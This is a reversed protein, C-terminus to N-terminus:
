ATQVARPKRAPLPLLGATDTATQSCNGLTSCYCLRVVFLLVIVLFKPPPASLAPASPFSHLFPKLSTKSLLSGSAAAWRATRTAARFTKQKKKKPQHGFALYRLSKKQRLERLEAPPASRLSGARVVPQLGWSGNRHTSPLAFPQPQSPLNAAELQHGFALACSLARGANELHILQDVLARNGEKWVQNGGPLFGLAKILEEWRRRVLILLGRGAELRPDWAPGQFPVPIGLLNGHSAPPSRAAHGQQPSRAGQSGAGAGRLRRSAAPPEAGRGASVGTAPPM